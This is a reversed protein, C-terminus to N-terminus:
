RQRRPPLSGRTAPATRHSHCAPQCPCARPINLGGKCSGGRCDREGGWFVCVCLSRGEARVARRLEQGCQTAQGARRGASSLLWPYSLSSPSSLLVRCCSARTERLLVGPLRGAPPPPPPPPPAPLRPLLPLRAPLPLLLPLKDAPPLPRRRHHWRLCPPGIWVLAGAGNTRSSGVAREQRCGRGRGQWGGIGRSLGRKSHTHRAPMNIRCHRIVDCPRLM